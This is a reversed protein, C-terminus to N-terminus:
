PARTVPDPLHYLAPLRSHDPSKEERQSNRCAFFRSASDHRRPGNREGAQRRSRVLEWFSCFYYFGTIVFASFDRSAQGMSAVSRGGDHDENSLAAIEADITM